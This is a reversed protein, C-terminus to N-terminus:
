TFEKILFPGRVGASFHEACRLAKDIRVMPNEGKTAYLCGKALEAACGIASYDDRSEEIQFDSDIFFIRGRYAVLFQGGQDVGNETKAYGGNKLCSIVDSIFYTHMYEDVPMENDHESLRLKWGLLQGMRFSTTFGILMKGVQYIKPDTRHTMSYGSVGASDAGMIVSGTDTKLAVVITM